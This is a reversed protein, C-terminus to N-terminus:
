DLVAVGAPKLRRIDHASSSTAPNRNPIQALGDELNRRQRLKEGAQVHEPGADFRARRVGLLYTPDSPDQSLAESYLELAQDYEKRAEAAQAQKYLKDGKRTRAQLLETPLLLLVCVLALLGRLNNYVLM